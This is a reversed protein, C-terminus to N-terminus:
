LQELWLTSACAGHSQCPTGQRCLAMNWVNVPAGRCGQAALVATEAGSSAAGPLSLVTAGCVECCAPAGATKLELMAAAALALQMLEALAAAGAGAVPHPPVVAEGNDAPSASTYGSHDVPSTCNSVQSFTFICDCSTNVLSADMGTRSRLCNTLAQLRLSPSMMFM